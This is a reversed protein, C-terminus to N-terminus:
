ITERYLQYIEKFKQPWLYNKIAKYSQDKIKQKETESLDLFQTIKQSLKDSNLSDILYGNLNDTILNKIGGSTYAIVPTKQAMSEMARTPLGEWSGISVSILAKKYFYAMREADKIPDLPGEFLVKDSKEKCIDLLYNKYEKSVPGVFVAKLNKNVKLVKLFAKLFLDPNKDAIIRGTFLLFDGLKDIDKIEKSVSFEDVGNNIIKIKDQDVSFLKQLKEKEVQSLVIIQDSQNVIRQALPKFLQLFAKVAFSAEDPAVGHVTNIVKFGYSKKLRAVQWSLLFWISHIHVIDPKYESIAKNVGFTWPNRPLLNFSKLYNVFIGYVKSKGTKKGNSSTLVQCEDGKALIDRATRYVYSEIGGIHPLFVHSVELIKM